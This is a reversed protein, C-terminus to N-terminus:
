LIGFDLQLPLGPMFDRRQFLSFKLKARVTTLAPQFPQKLGGSVGHRQNPQVQFNEPQHSFAPAPFQVICVVATAAAVAPLKDKNRKM